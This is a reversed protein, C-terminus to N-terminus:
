TERQRLMQIRLTAKREEVAFNMEQYIHSLLTEFRLQKAIKQLKM